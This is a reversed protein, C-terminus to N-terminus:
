ETVEIIGRLRPSLHDHYRWTGSKDFTFSWEENAAIPQRPDFEPYIGHTPHLNSAPWRFDSDQNKWIVTDGKKITIKEPDFADKTMKVTHIIENETQTKRMERNQPRMPETESEGARTLYFLIGITILLILIIVFPIKSM